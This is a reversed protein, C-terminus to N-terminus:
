LVFSLSSYDDERRRLPAVLSALLAFAMAFISLGVTKLEANITKTTQNALVCCFSSMCKRGDNIRRLWYAGSKKLSNSNNKLLMLMMVCKLPLDFFRRPREKSISQYFSSSILIKLRKM